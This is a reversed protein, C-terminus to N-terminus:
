LFPSQLKGPTFGDRSVENKRHNNYVRKRRYKDYFLAKKFIAIADMSSDYSYKWLNFFLFNDNLNYSWCSHRYFAYNYEM